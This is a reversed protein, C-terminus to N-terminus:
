PKKPMRGRYAPKGQQREIDGMYSNYLEKESPHDDAGADEKAEIPRMSEVLNSCKRFDAPSTKQESDLLPRADAYLYFLWNGFSNWVDHRDLYGRETLLGIDECFGLEDYLEIPADDIDLPHLRKLARDVRKEALSKRDSIWEPSDYKDLLTTLHQVMTEERMERVHARAEDRMEHIQILTFILAWMGGLALVLTSIATIRDWITSHITNGSAARNEEM